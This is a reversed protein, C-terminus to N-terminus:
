SCEKVIKFEVRRDLADSANDKGTGVMNERSGVGSAIMRKSLSPTEAQLKDKVYEARVISLRHNLPEPGTPSTHGVVELCANSKAARQSIQKIWISYQAATPQSSSFQTSGPRFLFKVALRNNALGFDVVKGFAEAADQRRNLRWNALYLGNLARLQDGGTTRLSSNYLDLADRYRKDNYANIADSIFAAALIRDAYVQEIADGPRTGQCSKIYAETSADKSFVPTDAFYPTPSADIGDPTARAVGKSIIKRAKLDALALCIRYADRAGGAQGANNIPTFTGILVVPSRAVIATSFPQVVFRPYTKKVLDVIRQEMSRTALSQAGTVGDILPDIALEIKDAGEPLVAKSFLDNAAKQVADEFAIPTPPPATQAMASNCGLGLALVAGSILISKCIM